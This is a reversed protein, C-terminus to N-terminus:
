NITTELWVEMTPRDKGSNGRKVAYPSRQMATRTSAAKPLQLLSFGDYIGIKLQILQGSDRQLLAKPLVAEYYLVDDEIKAVAKVGYHNQLSLIGDPVARFGRAFYGRSRNILESKVDTPSGFDQSQIARKVERDPHPFLLVADQQNKREALMSFLIGNRVAALQLAPDAVRVAVYLNLDDQGLQYSWPGEPAADVLTPWESLDGDIASPLFQGIQFPQKKQASASLFGFLCLLGVFIKRM